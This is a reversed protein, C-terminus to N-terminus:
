YNEKENKQSEKPKKNYIKSLNNLLAFFVCKGTFRTLQFNKKRGNVTEIDKM